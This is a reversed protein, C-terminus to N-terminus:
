FMALGAQVKVIATSSATIGSFYADSGAVIYADTNAKLYYCNMVGTGAAANLKAETDNKGWGVVCDVAADINNLHYVQASINTHGLSQVSTPASTAGTFSALNGMPTFPLM